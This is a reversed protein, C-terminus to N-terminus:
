KGHEKENLSSDSNLAANLLLAGDTVIKEGPLIGDGIAVLGQREGLISVKVKRTEIGTSHGDVIKPEMLKFVYSSDQDRVIAQTPLMIAKRDSLILNGQLYMDGRLILSPNKMLARIKITRSNADIVPSIFSVTGRLQQDPVGTDVVVVQNKKVKTLDEPYLDGLFWVEHLDALMFLADGPNVQNGLIANKAIVAGSRPARVVLYRGTNDAKESDSGVSAGLEDVDKKSLGMSELKKKALSALSKFDDDGGAGGFSKDKRLSQLYEERAAIYDPSWLLALPQGAVVTEGSAILVQEIRGGARAPVVNTRDETPSIKGTVSLTDPFDKLEAPTAKLNGMAEDSILLLDPGKVQVPEEAEQHHTCALLLFFIGLILKSLKM